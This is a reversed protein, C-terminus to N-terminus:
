AQGAQECLWDLAAVGSSVQATRFGERRLYKEILATLAQNDDVVLVTAGPAAPPAATAHPNTTVSPATM